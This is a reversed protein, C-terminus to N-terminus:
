VFIMIGDVWPIAYQMPLGPSLRSATRSSKAGEMGSSFMSVKMAENSGGDAKEGSVIMHFNILGLSRTISRKTRM